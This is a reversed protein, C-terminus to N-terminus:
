DPKRSSAPHHAAQGDEAVARRHAELLRIFLTYDEVPLLAAARQGNRTILIREKGFAVRGLM